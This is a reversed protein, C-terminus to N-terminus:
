HTGRPARYVSVGLFGFSASRKKPRQPIGAPITCVTGTGRPARRVSVGLFGFSASRKKPQRPIGSPITCVTGTGRPARYVSVGSFGFSASRKKPQRPIGSSIACVTGTGRPARRVSVGSFGFSANRKKPRQPIGASSACVAGTGRPARRVSVGNSHSAPPHPASLKRIHLVETSVAMRLVRAAAHRHPAAFASEQQATGVHAARVPRGATHQPLRPAAKKGFPRQGSTEPAARRGVTPM